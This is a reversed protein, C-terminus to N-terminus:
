QFYLLMNKYAKALKTAIRHYYHTQQSIQHLLTTKGTKKAENWEM